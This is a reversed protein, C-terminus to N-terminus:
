RRLVSLGNLHAKLETHLANELSGTGELCGLNAELKSYVSFLLETLFVCVCVCM